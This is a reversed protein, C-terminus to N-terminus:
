AVSIAIPRGFANNQDNRIKKKFKIGVIPESIAKAKGVTNASTSNSSSHRTPSTAAPTPNQCNAIPLKTCGRKVPSDSFRDVITTNSASAIQPASHPMAPANRAAGNVTIAMITKACNLFVRHNATNSLASPWGFVNPRLAKALM